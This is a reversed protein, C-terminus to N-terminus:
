SGKLWDRVASAPIIIKTGAYVARLRKARIEEYLQSRGIVGPGLMRRLQTVTYALPENSNEQSESIPKLDALNM